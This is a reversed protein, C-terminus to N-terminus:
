DATSDVSEDSASGIPFWVRMADVSRNAWM